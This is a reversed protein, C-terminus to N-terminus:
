GNACRGLYERAEIGQGLVDFVPLVEDRWVAELTDRMPGPQMARLVTMEPERRGQLWMEALLTHGLNLLFLKLRECPALDDTM